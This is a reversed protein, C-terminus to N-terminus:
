EAATTATATVVDGDFYEGIPLVHLIYQTNQILGTFKHQEEKDETVVKEEVGEGNWVVAEQDSAPKLIYKYSKVDNTVAVNFTLTTATAEGPTVKASVETLNDLYDEDPNLEIDEGDAWPTVTATLHIEELSYVKIVVKYQYGAVTGDKDDDTNEPTDNIDTTVKLPMTVTRKGTMDGQELVITLKNEVTVNPDQVGSADYKAFTMIEGDLVIPDETYGSVQADEDGWLKVGAESLALKLNGNTEATAKIGQATEGKSAVTLTGETLSSVQLGKLTMSYSGLNQITFHYKALAHNFELNPHIDGRASKASFLEDLEVGTSGLLDETKPATALLIDQTGDIAIGIAYNEDPEPNGNDDQSDEKCADDVYYAYFSYPDTTGNYFYTVGEGFDLPSKNNAQTGVTAAVNHLEGKGANATSENFGYIYVTKGAFATGDGIAGEAKTEATAVNTTFKIAVPSGDDVPENGPRIIEQIKQCGVTMTVVSIAFAFIKKMNIQNLHNSTKRILYM